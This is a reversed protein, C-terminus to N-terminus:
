HLPISNPRRAPVRAVGVAGGLRGPVELYAFLDDKNEADIQPM